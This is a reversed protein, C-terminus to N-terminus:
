INLYREALEKIAQDDYVKALAEVQEAFPRYQEDIEIIREAWQRVKKMSGRQALRLLETLEEVPPM